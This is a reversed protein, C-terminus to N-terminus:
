GLVKMPFFTQKWFTSLDKIKELFLCLADGGRALVRVGEERSPM